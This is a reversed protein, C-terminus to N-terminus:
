DSQKMRMELHQAGFEDCPEGTAECGFRKYFSALHTQAALAIACAPFYEQHLRLAESM